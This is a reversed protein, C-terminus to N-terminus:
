TPVPPGRPRPTRRRTRGRHRTARWPAGAPARPGVERGGPSERNMVPPQRGVNMPQKFRKTPHACIKGCKSCSRLLSDWAEAVEDTSVLTLSFGSQKSTGNWLLTNWQIYM